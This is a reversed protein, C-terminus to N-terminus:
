ILFFTIVTVEDMLRFTNILLTCQTKIAPFFHKEIEM